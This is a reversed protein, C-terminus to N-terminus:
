SQEEGSRLLREIGDLHGNRHLSRNPRFWVGSAQIEALLEPTVTELATDIAQASTLCVEVAAKPELALFIPKLANNITDVDLPAEGVGQAQWRQLLVLHRRDHFAMHALLAAVTWGDPTSRALDAPALHAVLAELRRRSASNEELFPFAM